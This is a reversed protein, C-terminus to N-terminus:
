RYTEASFRLGVDFVPKDNPNSDPTGKLAKVADWVTKPTANDGAISTLETWGELYIRVTLSAWDTENAASAVTTLLPQGIIADPKSDDAILYSGSTSSTAKTTIAQSKAVSPNTKATDEFDGYKVDERTSWEWGETQDVTSEHTLPNEDHGLALTGGVKVDTGSKSFTQKFAKNNEQTEAVGNDISVRIAESIDLANVAARIDMGTLFLDKALYTPTATDGNVELVRFQFPLEIYDEKATGEGWTTKDPYQYIPNRYLKDAVKNAELKGSTVPTLNSAGFGERIGDHHTSGETYGELFKKIDDKRLDQVWATKVEPINHETDAARYLRIQVNESCKAAAGEYAATVRTNYQFWAFTGSISGVTAAVATVALVGVLLKAKNIKMPM